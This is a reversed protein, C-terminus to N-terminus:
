EELSEEYRRLCDKVVDYEYGQGLLYRTFKLVNETTWEKGRAKRTLSLMCADQDDNERIYQEVIEDSIGKERLDQRIRRNSRTRHCEEIYDQCYARDDIYGYYEMKKLAFDIAEPSFGRDKLKTRAGKRTYARTSLASLVYHVADQQEAETVLAAFAKAEVEDGEKLHFDLIAQDSLTAYYAGDVYVDYRAQRKRKTIATITM